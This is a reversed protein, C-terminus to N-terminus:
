RQGYAGACRVGKYSWHLLSTWSCPCGLVMDLVVETRHKQKLTRFSKTDSLVLLYPLKWLSNRKLEPDNRGVKCYYQSAKNRLIQQNPCSGLLFTASLLVETDSWSEGLFHLPLCVKCIQTIVLNIVGM